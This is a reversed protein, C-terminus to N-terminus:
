DQQAEEECLKKDYKKIFPIFIVVNLVFLLVYVIISKFDLTELFVKIVTPATYPASGIIGNLWGIKRLLYPIAADLGFVLMYPFFLDFNFVMPVGFTLPEGICFLAPVVAMKSVAKLRDSKAFIILTVAICLMAMNAYSGVLAHPLANAATGAAYAEKNELSLVNEFPTTVAGVVSNGHIGCWWFFRSILAVSVHYFMTDSTMVLPSLLKNILVPLLVGEGAFKQILQRFLVMVGVAITNTFLGGMSDAVFPPVSDPFKIKLGHDELFYMLLPAFYGILIACFMGKAAFFGTDLQGGAINCCLIFFSCLALVVSSTPKRHKLEAVALSVGVVVYLSTFNLTLNYILNLWGANKAAFALMAKGIANTTNAPFPPLMLVFTFSGIMTAVTPAMCGMQVAKVFDTQSIKMIVPIIKEQVFSQTKNNESM